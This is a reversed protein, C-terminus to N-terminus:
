PRYDSKQLLLQYNNENALQRLSVNNNKKMYSNVIQWGIWTGVRGPSDQSVPATFPAEDLYSNILRMDSSFLAKDEIIKAWIEKEFRKCWQWQERTYGMLVSPEVDPMFVSLLFLIKGNYLMNDLLRNNESEMPFYSFLLTSVVDPAISEPRMNFTLYEYTFSKYLPYDAGLYLDAGVAILSPYIIISRNFGSVFFYIEPLRIEPFYHHMYTFAISLQKEIDHVDAFTKLVEKNVKQFAANCLFDGILKAVSDTDSPAVNLIENIFVPFFVPYDKYIKRIEAKLNTTDVNILDKDFRRIRVEVENKKTNIRFRNHNQCSFLFIILFFLIFFKIKKTM